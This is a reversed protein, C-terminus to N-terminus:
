GLRRVEDPVGVAVPAVWIRADVAAAGSASVLVPNLQVEVVEPLDDALRGLRLLLDRVAPVDYTVPGDAELLVAGARSGELLEDVDVDTLPV